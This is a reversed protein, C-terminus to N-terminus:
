VAWREACEDGPWIPSPLVAIAPRAFLYGQMLDVGLDRLTEFEGVSEVGECIPTIGLDLLMNLTNRVIKQKVTSKEVGRVLGMDLKVFDPQFESLLGLGAYGSGFDDIATKFGMSRYSRLINLLHTAYLREVETFEFIIQQVPFGTRMAASLTLRICARPEYVANPLFNISLFAGQDALSLTSALEIAKVRCKQDFAYRNADSVQALISGASEGGAGRVLAEHAFVRQQPVDVIPQFAMTIPLEFAAGDRCGQCTATM